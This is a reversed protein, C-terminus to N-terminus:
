SSIHPITISGFHFDTLTNELVQHDSEGMYAQSIVGNASFGTEPQPSM